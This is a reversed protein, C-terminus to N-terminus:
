SVTLEIRRVSDVARGTRIAPLLVTSRLRTELTARLSDDLTPPEVITCGVVTGDDSVFLDFVLRGIRAGDLTAADLEWDAAPAAPLEVEDFTYFHAKAISAGNSDPWAESDDSIEEQDTSRTFATIKLPLRTNAGLDSTAISQSSEVAPLRLQSRSVTPPRIPAMKPTSEPRKSTVTEAPDLLAPGAQRVTMWRIGLPRQSSPGDPGDGSSPTQDRQLWGLACAHVALAIAVCGFRGYRRRNLADRAMRLSSTVSLPPALPQPVPPLATM